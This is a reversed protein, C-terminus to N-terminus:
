GKEKIIMELIWEKFNKERQWGLDREIKSSDGYLQTIINRNILKNNIEINKSWNDIQLIDACVDIFEKISLLEGSSVIYDQPRDQQLMLYMGKVYDKAYGWDKKMEINGLSFKHNSDNKLMCMNRVIKQTVFDESRRYSEHNYLIATCAYIGRNRYYQVLNNEAIKGLGYLSGSKYITNENQRETGSSDFMLCSGATLIKTNSSNEHCAALLNSTATVNRIFIQNDDVEIGNKKGESSVHSASLHYIEDPRVQRVIEKVHSYNLLDIECVIPKKGKKSLEDQIKKSNNSMNKRAIGYIQYGKQDLLEYLFSGDQGFIGTILAKKM